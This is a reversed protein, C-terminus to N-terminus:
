FLSGSCPQVGMAASKAWKGFNPNDPFHPTWTQVHSGAGAPTIEVLGWYVTNAHTMLAIRYVGTAADFSPRANTSNFENWGYQMCKGFMEVENAAVQRPPNPVDFETIARQAKEPRAKRFFGFFRRTCSPLHLHRPHHLKGARTLNRRLGGM